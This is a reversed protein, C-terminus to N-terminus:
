ATVQLIDTTEGALDAFYRDLLNEAVRLRYDESARMDSIPSFDKAMAARADAIANENWTHGLLAAEVAPARKPTAAMGGFAVRADTVVGDAVTVNFAALVATIDQDFRKSVKYVRLNPAAKPMTIAELFEGPARDQRGYSIFFEEIPLTRRTEGKRLHLMAGLAILAPPSDGIPSGNAINGGLTAANRVQESAFRRVMAALSPHTGAIHGLFESMTVSAGFSVHSETETIERLTDCQSTFIVPAIDLLGKTVWLGVDTAGGVLTAEPNAVYAAALTDIDRPAIALPAVDPLDPTTMWDPVPDAAASEAARVIPAYGTCRCLNGALVTDNDRRGSSHAAVLSAIIGPTCFGCQSGHHVVMANQVPHLAGDPGSIGEVTRLSKGHIQPLFLICANVARAGNADEVIVTCAGCDGENCGEKTGTLSREERLWYLLTQTPAAAVDVREGNLLFSIESM